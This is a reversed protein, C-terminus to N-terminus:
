WLNCSPTSVSLPLKPVILQVGSALAEVPRLSSSRTTSAPRHPLARSDHFTTSAPGTAGGAVPGTAGGAAPGTSSGTGGLYDMGLVAVRQTDLAKAPGVVENWWGNRGAGTDFVRRSASIGGLALVVPMGPEGSLTYGISLSDLTGGHHLTTPGAVQLVGEGPTASQGNDTPL